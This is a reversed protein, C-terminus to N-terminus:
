ISTAFINRIKKEESLSQEELFSRHLVCSNTIKLHSPTLALARPVSPVSLDAAKHLRTATQRLHPTIISFM